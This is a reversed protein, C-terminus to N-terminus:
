IKWEEINSITEKQSQGPAWARHTDRLLRKTTTKNFMFKDLDFSDM